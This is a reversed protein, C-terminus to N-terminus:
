PEAEPELGAEVRDMYAHADEADWEDAWEAEYEATADGAEPAPEDPGAELHHRADSCIGPAADPPRGTSFFAAIIDGVSPINM